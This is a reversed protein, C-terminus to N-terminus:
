CVASSSRFTSHKGALNLQLPINKPPFRLKRLEVRGFDRRLATEPCVRINTVVYCRAAEAPPSPQLGCGCAHVDLGGEPYRPLLDQAARGTGFM